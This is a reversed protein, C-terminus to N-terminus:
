RSADRSAAPAVPRTARRATKSVKRPARPRAARARRGRRRRGGDSRRRRSKAPVAAVARPGAGAPREAGALPFAADFLRDFTPRDAEDKVLCAALSERLVEREVGAAAVGRVADMTEAVSVDVGDARLAQVFALIRSRM